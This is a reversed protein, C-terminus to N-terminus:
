WLKMYLGAKHSFFHLSIISTKDFLITFDLQNAFSVQKYFNAHIINGEVLKSSNFNEKFSILVNKRTCYIFLNM